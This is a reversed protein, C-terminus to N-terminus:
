IAYESLDSFLFAAAGKGETWGVKRYLALSVLFAALEEMSLDM